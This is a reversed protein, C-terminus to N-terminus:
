LEAHTQIARLRNRIGTGLSEDVNSFNSIAREQLVTNALKLMMVINDMLREREEQTLVRQYLIRAQVYNTDDQANDTRKAVGVLPLAPSLANARADSVPGQFSNPHYNPAGGQSNITGYGDRTYTHLKFPSNVPLQTPNPGLRHRHTDGYSYLRGQLMRDPSPEIGPILHAVDFAIQEVEAFYNKPNRNLVLRGVPILPYEAHLWVKTVDFPDYPSAAAQEPTMIQVYFSWSPYNGKEIENYLDRILYDPDNGAINTAENPPLNRIGQNTLYHFKCYFFKGYENVFAFTDSGYGHMNRYSAPIGRDSFFILNQHTTEARLTMMDWFMDADRLHTVPNRKLIHIFSPFLAADKIFFIPTNNGVLDWIGDETYFKVAFGRVDRVTDPYGM